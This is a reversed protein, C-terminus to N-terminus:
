EQVGRSLGVAGLGPPHQMKQEPGALQWITKSPWLGGLTLCEPVRRANVGCSCNPELKALFHGLFSAHVQDEAQRLYPTGITAISVVLM